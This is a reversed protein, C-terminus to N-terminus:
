NTTYSTNALALLLFSHFTSSGRGERCVPMYACTHVYICM